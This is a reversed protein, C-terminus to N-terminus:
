RQQRTRRKKQELKPTRRLDAPSVSSSFFSSVQTFQLHSFFFIGQLNKLEETLGASRLRVGFDVIEIIQNRSETTIYGQVIKTAKNEEKKTGVESNRLQFL